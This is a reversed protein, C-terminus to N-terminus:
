SGQRRRRMMALGGVGLLVLTTPEPVVTVDFTGTLYIPQEGGGLETPWYATLAPGTDVFWGYTTKKPPPPPPPPPVPKPYGGCPMPPFNYITCPLLESFSPGILLMIAPELNPNGSTIMGSVPDYTGTEAADLFLTGTGVTTGLADLVNFTAQISWTIANTGAIPDVWGTNAAPDGSTTWLSIQAASLQLNAGVTGYLGTVDTIPFGGGSGDVSGITDMGTLAIPIVQGESLQVSFFLLVTLSGWSVLKSLTSM